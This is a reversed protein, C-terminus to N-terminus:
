LSTFAARPNLRICSASNVTISTLVDNNCITWHSRDTIQNVLRQAPEITQEIQDVGVYPADGDSRLFKHAISMWIKNRHAALALQHLLNGVIRM